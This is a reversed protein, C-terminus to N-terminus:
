LLVSLFKEVPGHPLRSNLLAIFLLYAGAAIIGATLLITRATGARLALMLAAVLVFLGLTLGLWPLVVIFGATIATVALRAGLVRRPAFLQGLGLDARGALVQAGVRAGHIAILALLVVGIVTANAKAEWALNWVSAFYYVTFAVGLVPLALEGGLSPKVEAESGPDNAM